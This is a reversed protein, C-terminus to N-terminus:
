SSKATRVVLTGPERLCEELVLGASFIVKNSGRGGFAGKYRANTLLPRFVPATPICLTSISIIRVLTPMAQASAAKETENRPESL